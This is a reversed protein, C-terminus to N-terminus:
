KIVLPLYVYFRCGDHIDITGNIIGQRIQDIEDRVDQSVFPDAEHYPALGVGDVALDYLVTGSTFEGFKVDSITDFVANDLRKMASTLLKESGDVAGNEFVNIYWDTDTGIGWAGSQTATLVAGIGTLGAPAFIADAGQSIMDQAIAAGLDSDTFTHTYQILVSADPNVCQAGNRYGEVFNVVAPVAQLGGVAGLIDSQTMLGALVGAMYGSEKEYFLIGRLNGPPSDPSWDVIEFRTGPNATAVNVTADSLLWSNAICLDNGDDVCQQLKLEYEADNTPTYVTGVVGLESEARLVGQYTLWNFGMDNVGTEVPVLGVTLTPLDKAWVEGGTTDNQLGAYLGGNYEAMDHVAMNGSDGFGDASDQVWNSGDKTIWVSAGEVHNRVGAYLAGNAALLSRVGSNNSNGFGDANTQSWELGNYTRWIEVGTIPNYTSVYLANDFVAMDYGLTWNNVDGFGGGVIQNWDTGNSSQWIGGDGGGVGAYLDDHFIALSWVGINGEGFGALNVQTWDNGNVTRWVQGGNNNRTCAYFQDEFVIFDYVYINNPDGFGGGEAQEWTAGDGSRWIETGQVDNQTAVYLTDSFIGYSPIWYNLANGFGDTMVDTWNISDTYKLIQAGTSTNYTSAYLDGKFSFPIGSANDSDGFGDTNIQQWVDNTTEATEAFVRSIGILALFAFLVSILIPFIKKTKM